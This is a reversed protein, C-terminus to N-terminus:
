SFGPSMRLLSMGSGSRQSAGDDGGAPPTPPALTSSAPPTRSPQREIKPKGGTTRATFTKIEDATQINLLANLCQEVTSRNREVLDVEHTEYQTLVDRLHDLRSEDVAQLAELVYPAQSDWQSTANDVESAANAVKSAAAKAGKDRLKDAKRQANEMEKALAQLNGSMNPM